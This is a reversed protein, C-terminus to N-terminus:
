EAALKPFHLVQLISHTRVDEIVRQLVLCNAVAKQAEPICTSYLCTLGVKGWLLLFNAYNVSHCKMFCSTEYTQGFEM